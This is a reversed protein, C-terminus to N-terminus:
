FYTNSKSQYPRKYYANHRRRKYSPYYVCKCPLENLFSPSAVDIGNTRALPGIIPNKIPLNMSEFSLVDEYKITINKVSPKIALM